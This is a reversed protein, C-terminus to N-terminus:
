RLYKLGYIHNQMRNLCWVTQWRSCDELVDFIIQISLEAGLFASYILKGKNIKNTDSLQPGYHILSSPLVIATTTSLFFFNRQPPVKKPSLKNHLQRHSASNEIVKCYQYWYLTPFFREELYYNVALIACSWSGRHCACCIFQIEKDTDTLSSKRHHSFKVFSLNRKKRQLIYNNLLSTLM